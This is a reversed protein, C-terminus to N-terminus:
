SHHHPSLRDEVAVEVGCHDSLYAHTGNVLRVREQLVLRAAATLTHPIPARLFIHDLAYRGTEPQRSAPTCTPDTNGALPDYVHTAQVLATYLWSGRPVNFDGCILTLLDRDLGNVVRTLQRLEALQQRAYPNRKSWDDDYNALLHTNLIAVPAQPLVIEGILMGKRLMWDAMSITLWRGRKTYSVFRTRRIPWRSLILLGGKLMWGWPRYALYPLKPCARRFLAISRALVIEQLCVIDYGADNLLRGLTALRVDTDRIWPLGQCNLTLIRMGVVNDGGM